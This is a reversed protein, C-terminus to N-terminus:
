PRRASESRIERSATRVGSWQFRDAILRYCAPDIAVLSLNGFLNHASHPVSSEDYGDSRVRIRGIAGHKTFFCSFHGLLDGAEQKSSTRNSATSRKRFTESTTFFIVSRNTSSWLSTREPKRRM